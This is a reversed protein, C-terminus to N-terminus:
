GARIMVIRMHGPEGANDDRLSRLMDRLAAIRALEDEVGIRVTQDVQIQEAAVAAELQGVVHMQDDNRPARLRQCECELVRM